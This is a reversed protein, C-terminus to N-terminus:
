MFKLELLDDRRALKLFYKKYSINSIQKIMLKIKFLHRNRESYHCNIFEDCDKHPLAFRVFVFLTLPIQM